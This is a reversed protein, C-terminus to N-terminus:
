PLGLWPSIKFSILPPLGFFSYFSELIRDSLSFVIDMDHEVVVFTSQKERSVRQINELVKTREVPNMGTTPEDLFFLKPEPAM